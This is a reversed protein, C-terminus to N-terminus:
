RPGAALAFIERDKCVLGYVFFSLRKERGGRGSGEWSQWDAMDQGQGMAGRM